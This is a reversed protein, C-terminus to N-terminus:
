CIRANDMSKKIKVMTKWSDKGALMCQLTGYLLTNRKRKSASSIAIHTKNFNVIGTNKSWWKKAEKELVIDHLHIATSWRMNPQKFYKEIWNKFIKIIIADSNSLSVTCKSYKSGEGMYIGLGLMFVPDNYPPIYSDYIEKRKADWKKKMAAAGLICCRSVKKEYEIKNKILVDRLWVSLIGKSVSVVERIENFTKGDSRMRFAIEKEKAKM